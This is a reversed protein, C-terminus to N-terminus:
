ISRKRPSIEVFSASRTHVLKKRNIHRFNEHENQTNVLHRYKSSVHHIKMKVAKLAKVSNTPYCSPCEAQLFSLPPTCAHNDPTLHLHAYQGALAVAV